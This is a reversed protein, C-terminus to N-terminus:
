GSELDMGMCNMMESLMVRVSSRVSSASSMVQMQLVILDDTVQQKRM